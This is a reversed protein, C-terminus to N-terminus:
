TADFAGGQGDAARLTEAFVALTKTREAGKFPGAGELYLGIEYWYSDGGSGRVAIVPMDVHGGPPVDAPLAIKMMDRAVLGNQDVRDVSLRIRGDGKQCWPLPSRNWARITFADHGGPTGILELEGSFIAPDTSFQNDPYPISGAASNKRGIYFINQGRLELSRGTEAMYQLLNDPVEDQRYVDITELLATEFGAYRGLQEVEHPTYERNHRGYAGKWPVFAGFFYPSTGNLARWVGQLSVLNPTTVLFVGGERTVRAAERFMFSPDIALRELIRWAWSSILIDMLSRSPVHKSM